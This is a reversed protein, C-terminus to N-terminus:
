ECCVAVLFAKKVFLHNLRGPAVRTIMSDHSNRRSRSAASTRPGRAWPRIGVFGYIQM